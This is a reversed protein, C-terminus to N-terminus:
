ECETLWRMQGDVPAFAAVVKFSQDRFVFSVPAQYLEDVTIPGEPTDFTVARPAEIEGNLRYNELAVIDSAIFDRCQAADTRALVVPHLRDFFFDVDDADAAQAYAEIFAEVTEAPMTTTTTTTTPAATTTTSTTTTTTTTTPEPTATTSTVTSTMPLTTTAPAAATSPSSEENDGSSLVGVIGVAILIAGLGMLVVGYSRRM